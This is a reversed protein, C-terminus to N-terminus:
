FKKKKILAQKKIEDFLDIKKLNNIATKFSGVGPLIIIPSNDINKKSNTVQYDAGLYKLSNVVSNINGMGYDIIGIKKMLEVRNFFNAGM